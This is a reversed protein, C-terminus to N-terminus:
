KGSIWNVISQLSQFYKKLCQKVFAEPLGDVSENMDMCLKGMRTEAPFQVRFLNKLHEKPEIM